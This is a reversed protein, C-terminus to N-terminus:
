EGTLGLHCIFIHGRADPCEGIIRRGQGAQKGIGAKCAPAIFVIYFHDDEKGPLGARHAPPNLM